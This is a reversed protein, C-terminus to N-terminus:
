RHDASPHHLRRSSGQAGGSAASTASVPTSSRNVRLSGTGSSLSTVPLQM